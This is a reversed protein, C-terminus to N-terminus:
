FPQGMFYGLVMLKFALDYKSTAINIKADNAQNQAVLLDMASILGKEYRKSAFDSAVNASLEKSQAAYYTQLATQADSYAKYVDQKLQLRAEEDLFNANQVDVEAQKVAYRSSLGNFLPFNVGISFSQSRNNWIQKGWPMPQLEGNPLYESYTSSYNTGSSGSLSLQPYLGAKAIRIGKDAAKRRLLNSRISGFHREAANYIQAPKIALVDFPLDSVAIPVPIFSQEFDLNLLAKIDIIALEYTLAGKYYAASDESLQAKVQALDQGNSRGATLLLETQKAQKASLRMKRENIQVQEKALLVKLFANALNLSIDWEIQDQDALAAEYLLHNKKVTERKQFWGFLLVSGGANLGTFGYSRNEFQNTTPNISRGYSRGYSSSLSINPLLSWKSLELQMKARREDLAKSRIKLNHGRAYDVCRDITWLTDQSKAKSLVVFQLIVLLLARVVINM